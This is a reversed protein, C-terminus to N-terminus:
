LVFSALSSKGMGYESGFGHIRAHLHERKHGHDGGRTGEVAGAGCGDIAAGLRHGVVDRLEQLVAYVPLDLRVLTGLVVVFALVFVLDLILLLTLVLLPLVGLDRATTAGDTTTTPCRRRRRRRRRRRAIGGAAVVDVVIAKLADHAFMLASPQMESQHIM